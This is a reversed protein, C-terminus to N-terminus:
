QWSPTDYKHSPSQPTFFFYFILFYFTFLLILVARTPWVVAVGPCASSLIVFSSHLIDFYLCHSTFLLFYFYFTFVPVFPHPHRFVSLSRRIDFTSHLIDFHGCLLSHRVNLM